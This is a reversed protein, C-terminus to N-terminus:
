VGVLIARAPAGDVGHLNLPLCYLTYRGQGVETLDIGELIFVGGKLLIEHTPRSQQYPAISLYDIGVLKVGRKVAEPLMTPNFPDYIMTGSGDSAVNLHHAGM